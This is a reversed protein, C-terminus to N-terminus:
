ASTAPEATAPRTGARSSINRAISLVVVLIGVGLVAMGPRIGTEFTLMATLVRGPVVGFKFWLVATEAAIAMAGVGLGLATLTPLTVEGRWREVARYLLLWALLGAMITPETAELRTQLFFHVVALVAIPYALWHLQRWRRGGLRRAMADTSTAALAILGCLATFGITLYLRLAIEGAAKVLDFKQDAIYITFHLAAYCFAAVGIRRRVAALRPWRMVQRLPMVALSLIVFRVAWSGAEQLAREVPRPGMAGLAYDLAIWAAPAILGLLVATRLAAVGVFRSGDAM